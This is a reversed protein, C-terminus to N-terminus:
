NWALGARACAPIASGPASQEAAGGHSLLTFLLMRSNSPSTSRYQRRVARLRPPSAAQGRRSPAFAVGLAGGALALMMSETLLQGSLAAV